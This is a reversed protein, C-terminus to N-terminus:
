DNLVEADYIARHAEDEDYFIEMNKCLAGLSHRAAFPFLYHSLALTDIVPLDIDGYGYKLCAERLFNYDFSANHSVLISGKIFELIKPLAQEITPQGRVMEDTINTIEVIKEPIKM